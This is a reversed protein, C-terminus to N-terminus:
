VKRYIGPMIYRFNTLDRPISETHGIFLYGGYEMFDYFKKILDIKTEHKFYIMVNRCFITHFKQRFPFVKEMLNFKRFIIEKKLEPNIIYKGNDLKQFYNLRWRAPLSDVEDKGYMGNMAENLVKESIYTHYLNIQWGASEHRRYHGM